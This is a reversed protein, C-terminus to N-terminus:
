NICENEIIITMEPLTDFMTERPGDEDESDLMIPWDIDDYDDPSIEMDLTEMIISNFAEASLEDENIEGASFESGEQAFQSNNLVDERQKKNSDQIEM